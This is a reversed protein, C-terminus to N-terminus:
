VLSVAWSAANLWASTNMLALRVMYSAILVLAGALFVRNVRGRRKADLYLSALALLSPVGFFWLPGLALLMPAFTMRGIAPPLLSIALVLMLSKHASPRKRYYVAAAFLGAFVLLDFIPVIMFSLPAIEPPAATSGYKGAHLAVPLGTAVVAAALGIGAYGLQQHVRVRSAAVLRVQVVFLVVWLTMVLGHVHVMTTPLPPTGFWAKAYYTPAFGVFVLLLFLIASTLFLRRDFARIAVLDRM